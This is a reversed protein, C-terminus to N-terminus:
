KTEEDNLDDNDDENFYVNAGPTENNEDEENFDDDYMEFM